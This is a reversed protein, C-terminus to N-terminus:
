EYRQEVRVMQGRPRPKSSRIRKPRPAQVVREPEEEMLEEEAVEEVQSPQARTVERYTGPVMRSAMQTNTRGRAEGSYVMQNDSGTRAIIGQGAWDGCHDCPECCHGWNFIPQRQCGMGCCGDEQCHRHLLPFMPHCFLCCGTNGALLVLAFSATAAFRM